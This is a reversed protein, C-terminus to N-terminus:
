HMHELYSVAYDLVYDEGNEFVAHFADEDFPIIIDPTMMSIRSADADILVEGTEDLTMGGSFYLNVNSLEMGSVMMASGCTKTFGMVTVNPLQMMTHVFIEAASATNSNVLIVIEGNGWINEASTYVTQVPEYRKTQENYAANSAVFVESDTFLSAIVPIMDLYGGGNGRMDLILKHAGDEKMNQLQEQLLAKMGSYSENTAEAHEYTIDGEVLMSNLSLLATDDSIMKYSLNTDENNHQLLDLTQRYRNYNDSTGTVTIAQETGRADIFTLDAHSSGSATVMLSQYFSVNGSDGVAPIPKTHAKATQIDVGDFSTLELGNRIGLDYAEGNPEVNAFVTRGDSLTVLSFGYDAGVQSKYYTDRNLRIAEESTGATVYVHGDFFALCFDTWAAYAQPFSRSDDAAEFRPLYEAYLADFDIQKYDTLIYHEKMSEFGAQFEDTYHTIRYDKYHLAIVPTIAICVLGALLIRYMKKKDKLFFCFVLILSGTYIGMLSIEFGATATFWLVLIFPIAFGLRYHLRISFDITKVIYFMLLALLTCVAWLGIDDTIM